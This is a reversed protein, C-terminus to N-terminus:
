TTRGKWPCTAHKCTTCTETPMRLPPEGKISDIIKLVNKMREEEGEIALISAGEAGNCGGAAIPVATVGMQELAQIETVVTGLVPFLGVAMGMSSEVRPFGTFAKAKRVSFPVLKELGVPIIFQIGKAYIAGIAGGITGGVPSGLLIGAEFHPDVANAGKIFVDQPGMDKIMDKSAIEKPAGRVYAIEPLRNKEPVLCLREPEICGIVYEEKKIPGSLEEIIYSTTTGRAICVIGERLAHKMQPLQVVAKAILRRAEWPTLIIQSLM